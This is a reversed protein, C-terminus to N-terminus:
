SDSDPRLLADQARARDILKSLNQANHETEDYYFRLHPTKRLGSDRAILRRFFPTAKELAEMLSASSVQHDILRVYVKAQSLDKSLVVATIQMMQLRPDRSEKQLGQALTQHIWDGVREVRGPVAM